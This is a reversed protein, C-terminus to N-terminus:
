NQPSLYGKLVYAFEAQGAHTHYSLLTAMARIVSFLLIVKTPSLMASTYSSEMCGWLLVSGYYQVGYVESKVHLCVSFEAHKM